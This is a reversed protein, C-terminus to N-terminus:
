GWAGCRRRCRPRATPTPPPTFAARLTQRWTSKSSTYALRSSPRWRPHGYDLEAWDEPAFTRIRQAEALSPLKRYSNHSGLVRVQDLRLGDLGHNNWAEGAAAGAMAGSGIGSLAIALAVMTAAFGCANPKAM